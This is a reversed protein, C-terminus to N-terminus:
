DLAEDQKKKWTDAAACGSCHCGLSTGHTAMEAMEAREMPPRPQVFFLWPTGVSRVLKVLEEEVFSYTPSNNKWVNVLLFVKM